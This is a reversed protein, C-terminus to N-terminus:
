RNLPTSALARQEKPSWGSVLLCWRRCTVRMTPTSIEGFVVVRRERRRGAGEAEDCTRPDTLGSAPTDRNAESASRDPEPSLGAEPSCGTALTARRASCLRVATVFAASALDTKTYTYVQHYIARPLHGKRM